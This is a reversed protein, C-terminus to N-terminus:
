ITQSITGSENAEFVYPLMKGDKVFGNSVENDSAVITKSTSTAQVVLHREPSANYSRPQNSSSPSSSPFRPQLHHQRMVPRPERDAASNAANAAAQLSSASQSLLQLASTLRGPGDIFYNNVSATATAVVESSLSRHHLASPPPSVPRPHLQDWKM